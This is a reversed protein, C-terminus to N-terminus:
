PQEEEQPPEILRLQSRRHRRAAARVIAAYTPAANISPTAVMLDLLAGPGGVQQLQGRRRLEDAVAVSDTPRGADALAALAAFVARHEPDTFDQPTLGAARMADLADPLLMAAGLAFAAADHAADTM